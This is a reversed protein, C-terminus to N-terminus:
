EKGRMPVVNDTPNIIREILAALKAFAQQKERLYTHRNYVGEVGGIAHALCREAIERPVGARTM